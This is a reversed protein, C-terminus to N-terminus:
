GGRQVLDVRVVRVECPGRTGAMLDREQRVLTAADDRRAREAEARERIEEETPTPTTAAEHLVVLQAQHREAQRVRAAIRALDIRGDAPRWGYHSEFWEAVTPASQRCGPREALYGVLAAWEDPWFPPDTTPGGLPPLPDALTGAPAPGGPPLAVPDPMM